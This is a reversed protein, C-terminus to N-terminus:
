RNEISAPGRHFGEGFKGDSDNGAKEAGAFGGQQAVHQAIGFPTTDGHDDVLEALQADIAFNELLAGDATAFLLGVAADELQGVAAEAARHLFFEERHHTFQHRATAVKVMDEDFGRAQRQGLRQHLGEVPRFDTVGAGHIRHDGDDVARRHGGAGKGCEGILDIGLALEIGIEIVFRRQMLQEGILQGAGIQDDEVLGVQQRWLCQCRDPGLHGLLQGLPDFDDLRVAALQRQVHQQAQIAFGFQVDFPALGMVILFVMFLVIVFGEIRERDLQRLGSFVPQQLRQFVRHDLVADQADLAESCNWALRHAQQQLAHPLTEVLM